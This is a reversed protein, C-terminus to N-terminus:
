STNDLNCQTISNVIVLSGVIVLNNSISSFIYNIKFHIMIYM